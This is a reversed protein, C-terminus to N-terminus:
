VIKRVVFNLKLLFLMSFHIINGFDFNQDELIKLIVNKSMKLDEFNFERLIQTASFKKIKWM